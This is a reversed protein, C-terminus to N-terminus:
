RARGNGADRTHLLLARVAEPVPIGRSAHPSPVAANGAPGAVPIALFAHAEGTSKVVALGSIEGHSNIGLPSILYLPADAPVLDNLDTMVGGQWIYGRCTASTVDCSGGVMQARDNIAFPTNLADAPDTSMLGLDRMGSARTWLFPHTTGDPYSAGGVIMGSNNIDAAVNIGDPVGLNGLNVPSGNDWLVAHPGLGFGGFSTNSCLGSTGVVQGNDNNKLALGVEDGPLPPLKQAKSANPSWLVAQFHTQQPPRCSADVTGDDSAGIIEGRNNIELAVSNVGGLTPLETLVGDHWRAARCILGSHLGCFDEGLPDNDRTDSLIALDAREARGSAQSNLGGLTGLDSMSGEYWRVAHQVGDPTTAAGVARGVNNIDFSISFPGGFTGLDVVTYHSPTAGASANASSSAALAPSTPTPADSCAVTITAATAALIALSAGRRRAIRSNRTLTSPTRPMVPIEQAVTLPAFDASRGSGAFDCAENGRPDNM